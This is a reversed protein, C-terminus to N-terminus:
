LLRNKDVDKKRTGSRVYFRDNQSNTAAVTFIKEDTFFIFNVMAAPYMKLLQRARTMRAQMNAATLEQANTKKLCQLQLDTKMIRHVSSQHIGSERAIQRVSRRTRPKDEQSLAMEEVVAVNGATRATHPRGSGTVRDVSGTHDTKELM